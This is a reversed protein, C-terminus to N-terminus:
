TAWLLGTYGLTVEDRPNAYGWRVEAQVRQSLDDVHVREERLQLGKLLAGFGGDVGIRITSLSNIRRPGIRYPATVSETAPPRFLTAGTGPHALLVRSSGSGVVISGPDTHLSVAQNQGEPM